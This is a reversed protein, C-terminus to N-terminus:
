VDTQEISIREFTNLIIETCCLGEQSTLLDKLWDRVESCETSGVSENGSVYSGAM